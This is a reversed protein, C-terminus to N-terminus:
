LSRVFGRLKFYLAISLALIFMVSHPTLILLGLGFLLSNTFKIVSLIDGCNWHIQFQIPRGSNTTTSYRGWGYNKGSSTLYHGSEKRTYNNGAYQCFASIKRAAKAM